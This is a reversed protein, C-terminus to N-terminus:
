RQLYYCLFTINSHLETEYIMKELLGATSVYILGKLYLFSFGSKWGISGKKRFFREKTFTPLTRRNTRFTLIVLLHIHTQLMLPSLSMTSSPLKRLFNQGPAVEGVVSKAQVTGTGFEPKRLSLIAVLRGLPPVSFRTGGNYIWGTWTRCPCSQQQIHSDCSVFVIHPCLAPNNTNLEFTYASVVSRSTSLLLMSKFASFISYEWQGSCIKLWASRNSQIYALLPHTPATKYLSIFSLTELISFFWTFTLCVPIVCDRIRQNKCTVNNQRVTVASHLPKRQYLAAHIRKVQSTDPLSHCSDSKPRRAGTAFVGKDNRSIPYSEAASRLRQQFHFGCGV